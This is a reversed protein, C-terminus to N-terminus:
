PMIEARAYDCENTTEVFRLGDAGPAFLGNRSVLVTLFSHRDLVESIGGGHITEWWADLNRGFWTPLGCPAALADWLASWSEIRESRLDVILPDGDQKGLASVALAERRRSGRLM